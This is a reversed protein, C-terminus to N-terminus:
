VLDAVLHLKINGNRSINEYLELFKPLKKVFVEKGTIFYSKYLMEIALGVIELAYNRSNTKRKTIEEALTVLDAGSATILRKALEKLKDDAEIGLDLGSKERYFYIAARSLVTKLLRSPSSTALVFHVKEGPEELNKLIANAAEEGLADAPRILVYQDHVQKLGIKQMASRVQEITIVTKGDPELVIANKITVNRPEPVVFISTGNKSAIQDIESLEDFFM